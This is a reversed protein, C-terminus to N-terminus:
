NKNWDKMASAEAEKKVTSIESSFFQHRGRGYEHLKQKRGRLAATLKEPANIIIYINEGVQKRTTKGDQPSILMCLTFLTSFGAAAGKLYNSRFIRRM